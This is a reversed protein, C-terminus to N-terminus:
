AKIGFIGSKKASIEFIGSKEASIEFIRSKRFILPFTLKFDRSKTSINGNIKLVLELFDVKKLV